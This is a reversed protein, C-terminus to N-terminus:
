WDASRFFVLLLGNPGALSEFSRLRADQDNLEFSPLAEGVAPGVDPPGQSPAATALTTAVVALSALLVKTM